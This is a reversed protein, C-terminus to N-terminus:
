SQPRPYLGKCELGLPGDSIPNGNCCDLGDRGVFTGPRCAGPLLKRWTTGKSNPGGTGKAEYACNNSRRRSDIQTANFKAEGLKKCQDYQPQDTERRQAELDIMVKCLQHAPERICNIRGSLSAAAKAIEDCKANLAPPKSTAPCAQEYFAPALDFTKATPGAGRYLVTLCQQHGSACCIECAAGDQCKSYPTEQSAPDHAYETGNLSPHFVVHADCGGPCSLGDDYVTLRLTEAMGQYPNFLLVMFLAAIRM